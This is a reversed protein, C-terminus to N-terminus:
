PDFECIGLSVTNWDLDIWILNNLTKVIHVHFIGPLLVDVGFSSGRVYGGVGGAIGGLLFYGLEFDWLIPCWCIGNM